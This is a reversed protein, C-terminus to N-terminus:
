SLFVIPCIHKTSSLANYRQALAINKGRLKALVRRTVNTYSPQGHASITYKVLFSIYTIISSYTYRAHNQPAIPHSSLHNKSRGNKSIRKQISSRVLYYRCRQSHMVINKSLVKVLPISLRFHHLTWKFYGNFGFKNCRVNRKTLHTILVSALPSFSPFFHRSIVKVALLTM